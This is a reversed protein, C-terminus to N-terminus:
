LGEDRGEGQFPSPSRHNEREREPLPIPHPNSSSIQHPNSVTMLIKQLVGELNEIMENNWFRLVRYGEAKLWEDRIKDSKNEAHQGGDLEIIIKREVCIFDVIYRGIPYQRRFKLHEFQRSRLLRWLKREVDTMNQRLQKAKSVLALNRPHYGERRGEGQFPSPSNLETMNRSTVGTDIIEESRNM